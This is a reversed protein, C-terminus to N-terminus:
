LRIIVQHPASFWMGGEPALLSIFATYSLGSILMMSLLIMLISLDNGFDSSNSAKDPFDNPNNFFRPNPNYTCWREFSM